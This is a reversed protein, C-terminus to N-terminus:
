YLIWAEGVSAPPGSGALAQMTREAIMVHGQATPHFTDFFLYTEPAECLEYTYNEESPDIVVLCTEDVVEFGFKQPNATIEAFEQAFDVLIIESPYLSQFDDLMVELMANHASIYQSVNSVQVPFDNYAPAVGFDPLTAVIFKRAGLGYLEILATELDDIAETVEAPNYSESAQIYNNAGAVVVYHAIGAPDYTEVQLRFMEVQDLVGAPVFPFTTNFGTRAGGYAYNVYSNGSLNLEDRVLEAWVPGDSFRGWFYPPSPPFRDGSLAYINGDDSLSDGFVVLGQVNQAYGQPPKLSILGAIVILLLFSKMSILEYMM